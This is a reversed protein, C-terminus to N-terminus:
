RELHAPSRDRMTVTGETSDSTRVGSVYLCNHRVMAQVTDVDRCIMSVKSLISLLTILDIIALSLAAISTIFDSRSFVSVASPSSCDLRIRTKAAMFGHLKHRSIAISSRRGCVSINKNGSGRSSSPSIVDLLTMRAGLLCAAAIRSPLVARHRIGNASSVPLFAVKSYLIFPIELGYLTRTGCCTHGERGILRRNVRVLLIGISM